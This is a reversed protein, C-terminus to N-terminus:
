EKLSKKLAKADANSQDAYAVAFKELKALAAVDTAPDGVWAQVRDPHVSPDQLHSRALADGASQALALFDTKNLKDPDLSERGATMSTVLCPHGHMAAYGLMPDSFGRLISVNEAAKAGIPNHLEAGDLATPVLQKLKLLVAPHSRNDAALLVLYKVLGSNSGGKSPAEIGMALIELPRAVPADKPLRNGYDKIAGTLAAKEEDDPETTNEIAGDGTHKKIYKKQSKEAAKDSVAALAGTMDERTLFAHPRMDKSLFHRMRRNYGAAVAAVLDHEDESTFKTESLRASIVVHTALRDLDWELLGVGSKDLDVWGWVIGGTAPDTFTMLNGLHADGVLLGSPSNTGRLKALSAFPGRVDKYFLAPTAALFHAANGAIHKNKKAIADVPLGMSANLTNVFDVAIQTPRTPAASESWAAAALCLGLAAGSRVMCRTARSTFRSVFTPTEIRLKRVLERSM